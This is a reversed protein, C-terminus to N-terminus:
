SLSNLLPPIYISSIYSSIYVHFRGQVSHARTKSILVFPSEHLLHEAQHCEAEIPDEDAEPDGSSDPSHTSFELSSLANAKYELDRVTTNLLSISLIVMFFTFFKVLKKM